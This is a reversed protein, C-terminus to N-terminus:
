HNKFDWGEDLGRRFEALIWTQMWDAAFVDAATEKLETLM